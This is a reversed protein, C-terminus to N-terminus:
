SALRVGEMPPNPNFSRGNDYPTQAVDLAYKLLLEILYLGIIQRGVEFGLERPDEPGHPFPANFYDM